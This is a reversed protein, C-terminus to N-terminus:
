LKGFDVLMLEGVWPYLERTRDDWTFHIQSKIAQEVEYYRDPEISCLPSNLHLLFGVELVYGEPAIILDMVLYARAQRLREIEEPSFAARIIGYLKDNNPDNSRVKKYHDPGADTGNKLVQQTMIKQNTINSVLRKKSVRTTCKFTVNTGKAYDETYYNQAFGNIGILLASLLLSSKM